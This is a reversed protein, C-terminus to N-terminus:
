KNDERTAWEWQKLLLRMSSATMDCWQFHPSDIERGVPHPTLSVREVQNRAYTWFHSYAEPLSTRGMWKILGECDSYWVWSNEKLEPQSLIFELGRLFACMEMQFTTTHIEGGYAQQLVQEGCVLRYAWGGVGDQHGSGDTYLEHIQM